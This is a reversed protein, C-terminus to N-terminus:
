AGWVVLGWALVKEHQYKGSADPRQAYGEIELDYLRGGQPADVIDVVKFRSSIVDNELVPGLHDCYRWAVMTLLNPLARGVQALILSITHGGYVLRQGLYSKTADTHTYAMNLSMRVLEPACTVTDQIKVDVEDGVALALPKLGTLESALPALNWGEPLAGLLEAEDFSHKIWGFDDDHGTAANQDRCAIMPSRWFHLVVDDRQNVTTMELAVMGTAARGPKAKNQKLGVVKTTTYLSDGVFVPKRLLMGRYFLNGKVHQSAYTTQGAALHVALYSHALPREDGTVRRSLHRDLPLRMRDGFLASYVAAHGDTVTISPAAFVQGITFEEFYPGDVVHLSM